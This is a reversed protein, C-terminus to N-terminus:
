QPMWSAIVPNNNHLHRAEESSAAGRTAAANHQCADRLCAPVISLSIVLLQLRLRCRSHM